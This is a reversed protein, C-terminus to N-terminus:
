IIMFILHYIIPVLLSPLLNPTRVKLIESLSLGLMVIIAYGVLLFDNLMAPPIQIIPALLYFGFEIILIPISSFLVGYGLTSALIIAGVFDLGSKILLISDNGNLSAELPGIVTMAGVGFLLTSTLLGTIFGKVKFKEELKVSLNNLRYDIKLTEGIIAGIVISVLLILEGKTSLTGDKIVILKSLTWGLGLIVVIIGLYKLISKSIDEKIVKKFLIGIIGGIIISAFNIVVGM